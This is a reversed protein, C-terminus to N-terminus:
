VVIEMVALKMGDLLQLVLGTTLMVSCFAPSFSSVIKEPKSVLYFHRLSALSIALSTSNASLIQWM